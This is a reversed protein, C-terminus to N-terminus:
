DRPLPKAFRVGQDVFGLHRYFDYAPRRSVGSTVEVRELGLAAFHREAAEVLRRGVGTGQADPAVVLVTIRGVSTPRHIMPTVHLTALGTVRGRCTGVLIRATSDSALLRLYRDHVLTPDAPYGLTALLPALDQADDVRADRVLIDDTM